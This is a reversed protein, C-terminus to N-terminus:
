AVRIPYGMLLIIVLVFASVIFTFTVTFICIEITKIIFWWAWKAATSVRTVTWCLAETIKNLSETPFASIMDTFGDIVFPIVSPRFTDVVYYILMVPLIPLLLAMIFTLLKASWCKYKSLVPYGVAVDKFAVERQGCMMDRVTRYKRGSKRTFIFQNDKFMDITMPGGYRLTNDKKISWVECKLENEANDCEEGFVLAYRNCKYQVNMMNYISRNEVYGYKMGNEVLHRTFLQRKMSNRLALNVKVSMKVGACLVPAASVVAM